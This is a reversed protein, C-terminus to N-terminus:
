RRPPLSCVQGQWRLCCALSIVCVVPLLSDSSPTSEQSVEVPVAQPTRTAEQMGALGIIPGMWRARGGGDPATCGYRWEGM